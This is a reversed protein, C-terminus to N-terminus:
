QNYYVIKRIITNVTDNESPDDMDSYETYHYTMVCETWNGQADRKTYKISIEGKWEMGEGEGDFTGKTPEGNETYATYTYTEFSEWGSKGWEKVRGEADYKLENQVYEVLRGDAGRKMEHVIEIKDSVKGELSKDDSYTYIADAPGDFTSINYKHLRGQEDFEIRDFFVGPYAADRLEIQKVDGKLNYIERDHCVLKEEPQNMVNAVSDKVATSDEGSANESTKNGCALMAPLIALYLFSKKM